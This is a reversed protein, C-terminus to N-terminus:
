DEAEVVTAEVVVNEEEIMKLDTVEEIMLEQNANM